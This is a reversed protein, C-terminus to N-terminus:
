EDDPPSQNHRSAPWWLQMPSGPSRFAAIAAQTGPRMLYDQLATAGDVNVGPHKAPDVVVSAMIRQLIPDATVLLTLDLRQRAQVRLFPLAGFIVYVHRESALRLAQGKAVGEDVFWDGKDLRGGRALLLETLYSVGALQNAIFPSGSAAIKKLAAAADTMGRVGAPDDPPGIIASQNAFVTRPWRGHGEIVFADMGHKGLHAIVLDAEGRKAREFVDSGGYLETRWGTAQEFGALLLSMLGSFHPTNVVAVRVPAAPAAHAPAGAMLLSLILALLARLGAIRYTM